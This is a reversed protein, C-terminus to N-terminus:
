AASYSFGRLAPIKKIRVASILHRNNGCGAFPHLDSSALKNIAPLDFLRCQLRAFFAPFM